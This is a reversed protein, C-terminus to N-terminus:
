EQQITTQQIKVTATTAIEQENVSLSVCMVDSVTFNVIIFMIVTVIVVLM